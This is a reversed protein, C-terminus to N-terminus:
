SEAETRSLFKLATRGVLIDDSDRLEQNKAVTKGRVRLVYRALGAQGAVEPHRAIYFRGQRGFVVAHRPAIASDPLFVQEGYGPRSPSADQSQSGIVYSNDQELPWQKRSRGLKSQARADGSSVFELLGHRLLIPALAIGFCIGAGTLVFSLAQVLDPGNGGLGAFLLGGLVGGVMGGTFAYPARVRNVTVWRLGLGLGIVSGALMWAVVRTIVPAQDALNRSIPIQILGAAFGAIVGIGVGALVWKFRVRDGSWRDSFAVTLGGVFGGLTTASVLDSPWYGTHHPLVISILVSLGWSFLGAVGGVLSM